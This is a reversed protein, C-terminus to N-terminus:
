PKGGVPFIKVNADGPWIIMQSTSSVGLGVGQDFYLMLPSTSGTGTWKFIVLSNQVTPSLGSVTVDDADLVGGTSTVGTLTAEGLIGSLDSYHSHSDSYVYAASMIAVKFTDAGIDIGANLLLDLFSPYAKNAM